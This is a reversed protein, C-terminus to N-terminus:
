SLLRQLVHQWDINLEALRAQANRGMERTAERDRYLQDMAAALAKPEPDCVMGNVGHM